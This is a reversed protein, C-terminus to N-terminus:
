RKALRLLQEMDLERKVSYVELDGKETPFNIDEYNSLSVIDQNYSDFM